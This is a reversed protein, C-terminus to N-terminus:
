KSFHPAIAQMSPDGGQALCGEAPSVLHKEASFHSQVPPNTATTTEDHTAARQKGSGTQFPLTMQALSFPSWTLHPTGRQLSRRLFTPRGDRTTDM